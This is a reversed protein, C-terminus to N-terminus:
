PTGSAFVTAVPPSAADPTLVGIQDGAAGLGTVYLRGDPGFALGAPGCPPAVSGVVAPTQNAPGASDVRWVPCAAGGGRAPVYLNGEDDGTLGEIGLTTEVVTAWSASAPATGPKHGGIASGALLVFATAALAAAVPILWRRSMSGEGQSYSSRGTRARSTGPK